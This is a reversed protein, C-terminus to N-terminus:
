LWKSYRKLFLEVKNKAVDETVLKEIKSLVVVVIVTVAVVVVKEM